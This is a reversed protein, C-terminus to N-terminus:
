KINQLITNFFSETTHDWLKPDCDFGYLKKFEDDLKNTNDEMFKKIDHNLEIADNEDNNSIFFEVIDEITDGYIQYDQNLYGAIFSTLYPYM